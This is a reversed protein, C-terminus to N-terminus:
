DQGVGPTKPNSAVDGRSAVVGGGQDLPNVVCVCLVRWTWQGSQSRNRGASPLPGVAAASSSSSAAAPPGLQGRASLSPQKYRKPIAGKSRMVELEDASPSSPTTTCELGMLPQYSNVPPVDAPSSLDYSSEGENTVTSTSDTM